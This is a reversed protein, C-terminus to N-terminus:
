DEDEDKNVLAIEHRWVDYHYHCTYEKVREAEGSERHVAVLEDSELLEIEEFIEKYRELMATMEDFDEATALTGLVDEQSIYEAYTIRPWLDYEDRYAESAAFPEYRRGLEEYFQWGDRSRLEVIELGFEEALDEAEQFDEFGVIAKYVGRPYGNIGQTVEVLELGKEEALKIFDFSRM